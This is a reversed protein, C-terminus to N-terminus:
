ADPLVTGVMFTIQLALFRCESLGNGMKLGGLKPLDMHTANGNFRDGHHDGTDGPNGNDVNDGNGGDSGATAMVVMVVVATVIEALVVMFARAMVGGSSSFDDDGRGNDTFFVSRRLLLCM